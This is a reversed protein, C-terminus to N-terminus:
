QTNAQDDVKAPAKQWLQRWRLIKFLQYPDGTRWLVAERIFTGGNATEAKALVTVADPRSRGPDTGAQRALLIDHVQQPTLNPLIQLVATPAAALDVHRRGSYVTINPAVREYLERTMGLVQLLEEVSEFPADKAGFRLGAAAYDADEAGGPRREDDRDRFDAIAAVLGRAEDGRVGASELLARLEDDVGRNLDIKGAEDQLTIQVQGDGLVLEYQSGNARWVTEEDPDLLGLMARQIGADALAEAKANEVLNRILSTETRTDRLFSAAILGLLALTWLVVVLAIGRENGTTACDVGKM